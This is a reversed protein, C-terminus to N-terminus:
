PAKLSYDIVGVFARANAESGVDVFLKEGPCKGAYLKFHVGEDVVGDVWEAFYPDPNDGGISMKRRVVLGTKKDTHLCFAQVSNAKIHVPESFPIYTYM